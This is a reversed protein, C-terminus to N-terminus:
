EGEEEEESEDYPAFTAIVVAGEVIFKSPDEILTETATNLKEIADHIAMRIDSGYHGFRIQELEPGINNAM